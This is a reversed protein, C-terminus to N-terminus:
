KLLANYIKLYSLVGKELSFLNKSVNHCRNQLNPDNILNEILDVSKKINLEHFDKIIIGTKSNTLIESHDGVGDNTIIPIGSALFEGLKTACSAKKSFTPKIFFVGIDIKNMEKQINAFKSEGIYIDENNFNYKNIMTKIYDHDNINLIRLKSNPQKKKLYKFVKLVPDFLYWGRVTGIYGLTISPKKLISQKNFKKLDTCTRIVYILSKKNRLINMKELEKKGSESLSIIINSNKLLLIEIKKGIRYSLSKKKWLGSDVKEDFWFGRMDFISKIKFFKKLIESIIAPPYSRSYILKIKYRFVLYFSLFFCKLINLISSLFFLKQSYNIKYWKIHSSECISLIENFNKKSSIDKKKEFSILYFNFNSSLHKLYSLVQSQGLPELIGDWSIYLISKKL